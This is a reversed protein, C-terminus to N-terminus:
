IRPKAAMEEAERRARMAKIRENRRARKEADGLEGAGGFAEHAADLSHHVTLDGRKVAREVLAHAVVESGLMGGCFELDSVLTWPKPHEMLWKIAPLDVANGGHLTNEPLEGAFRKGEKAYVVLDGKGKDNGSYYAVTATPILQCLASLNERTAGMSGSADIVVTGGPKQRVRRSFLGNSEGSVVANVYRAANLIVGSPAHRRTISKEKACFVSKPRLDHIRMHGDLADGGTVPSLYEGEEIEPGEYEDQEPSEENEMLSLLVSIATARKRRSKALKIVQGIAKFTKNGIANRVAV